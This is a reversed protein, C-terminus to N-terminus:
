LVFIYAASLYQKIGGYLDMYLPIDIHWVMLLVNRIIFNVFLLALAIWLYLNRYHMGIKCKGASIREATQSVMFWIGVAAAYPVVPNYLFSRIWQGQLLLVAARTGGCGPCYLGTLMHFVCPMNREMFTQGTMKYLFISGILFWGTIYCANDMKRDTKM